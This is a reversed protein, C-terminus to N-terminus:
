AAGGLGDRHRVLEALLTQCLQALPGRARGPPEGRQLAAALGPEVGLRGALPLGVAQAVPGAPLRSSPTERVVVRVDAVRRSLRRAVQSGAAAARVDARVVLLVADATSLAADVEPGGARPLDLVVLDHGRRGAALVSEVAEVPLDVPDGRDWSLVTAGAVAPLVARLEDAGSRGRTGALAPWRLGAASEAGLLLDLGGGLPDVDVLLMRAGPLERAASVALAAALTSAGAGGAGAVIAVTRGPRAGVEAGAGLLRDVLLGEAPPLVHVAEAGLVAAADWATREEPGARPVLVVGPRRPLAATMLGPVVDVGLLVLPARHWSPRAAGADPAVQVEAGALASLRLLEDLLGPDATVILPRDPM